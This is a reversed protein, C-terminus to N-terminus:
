GGVEYRVFRRVVINEGLRAIASQLKDGISESANRVFAQSLLVNEKYFDDASLDSSSLADAPVDEVRVYRPNTAAIHLAIDKCLAIFDDTRAVFDTECDVEVLVGMRAGAHIYVEIRGERAERDQKKGADALGKARLLKIAEEVNGDTQTLVEKCEKFGAGTRDRLEKVMQATIAM